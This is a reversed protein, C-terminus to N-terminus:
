DGDEDGGNGNPQVLTATGEVDPLELEKALHALGLMRERTPRRYVEVEIPGGDAGTHRHEFRERYVEPRRAKLLTILLANSIQVTEEEVTEEELVKGDADRKVRRRTIRKPEGVTARRVAIQELLDTGVEEAERWAAAFVPDAKAAEYPYTRAVGAARAAASVNPLRALSELFRGKWEAAWEHRTLAQPQRVQEQEVQEPTGGV